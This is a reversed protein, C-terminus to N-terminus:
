DSQWSAKKAGFLIRDAGAARLQSALLIGLAEPKEKSGTVAERIVRQGDPSFVAGELRIKHDETLTALGGVPVACDGGLSKLLQREARVCLHTKEDDLQSLITKIEKRNSRIEIGIAGQGPACLMEDPEFSQTIRDEKGLRRLGCAALVIADYQGEDLKKLRTDVNGRIEAFTLDRRLRVLQAQRRLSSVGVRAQPKLGALPQNGQTVLADSVDDRKLVTTLELGQPLDTTMDKVSHVALDIAGSLLGDELEKVFLGKIADGKPLAPEASEKDGTTKMVTLEVSVDGLDELQVKVMQAQVLALKSGRTGIKLKM